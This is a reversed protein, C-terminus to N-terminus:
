TYCLQSSHTMRDPFCAYSMICSQNLTWINGRVENDDDDDSSSFLDADDYGHKSQM